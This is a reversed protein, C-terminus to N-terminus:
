PTAEELEEFVYEPIKEGQKKRERLFDMTERATQFHHEDGGSWVEYYGGVHYFCYVDSDPGLRCFSMLDEAPM